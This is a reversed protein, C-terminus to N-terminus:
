LYKKRNHPTEVGRQQRKKLEKLKLKGSALRNEFFEVSNRGEKIAKRLNKQTKKNKEIRQAITESM